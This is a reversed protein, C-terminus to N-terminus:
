RGFPLNDDYFWQNIRSFKACPYLTKVNDFHKVRSKPIWRWTQKETKQSVVLFFDNQIQIEIRRCINMFWNLETSQKSNTVEFLLSCRASRYCLSSGIPESEILVEIVACSTKSSQVLRVYPQVFYLVVVIRECQSIYVFMTVVGSHIAAAYTYLLKNVIVAIVARQTTSSTFAYRSHTRIVM